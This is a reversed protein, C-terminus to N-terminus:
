DLCIITCVKISHRQKEDLEEDLAVTFLRILDNNVREKITQSSEWTFGCLVPNDVAVKEYIIQHLILYNWSLNIPVNIFDEHFDRLMFMRAALGGTLPDQQGDLYEVIKDGIKAGLTKLQRLDSLMDLASYAETTAFMMELAIQRKEAYSSPDPPPSILFLRAILGAHIVFDAAAANSAKFIAQYADRVKANDHIPPYM